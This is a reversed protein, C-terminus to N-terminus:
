RFAVGSARISRSDCAGFAACDTLLRLEIVQLYHLSPGRPNLAPEELLLPRASDRQWILRVAAVGRVNRTAAASQKPEMASISM